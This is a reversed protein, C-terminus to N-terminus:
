VSCDHFYDRYYICFLWLSLLRLLLHLSNKETHMIQKMVHKHQTVPSLTWPFPIKYSTTKTRKVPKISLDPQTFQVSLLEWIYNTMRVIALFLSVLVHIREFLWRDMLTFTAHVKIAIKLPYIYVTYSLCLGRRRRRVSSIFCLIERIWWM